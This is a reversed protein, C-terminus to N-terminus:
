EQELGLTTQSESALLPWASVYPDLLLSTDQLLDAQSQLQQLLGQYNASCSGM